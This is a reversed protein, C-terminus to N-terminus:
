RPSARSSTRTRAAPSRVPSCRTVAALADPSPPVPDELWLPNVDALGVAIRIATPVDFRWHCDFALDIEPGVADRLEHARGLLRELERASLTSDEARRSTEFADLDFKLKTFGADIAGRARDAWREPELSGPEAAEYVLEHYETEGSLSMWAPTRHRMLPSM